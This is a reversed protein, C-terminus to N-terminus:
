MPLADAFVHSRPRNVYYISLLYMTFVCCICLLYMTFGEFGAAGFISLFTVLYSGFAVFCLCVCVNVEDDGESGV